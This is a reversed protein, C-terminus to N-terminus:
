LTRFTIDQYPHLASIKCPTVCISSAKTVCVVADFTMGKSGMTDHKNTIQHKTTKTIQIKENTKQNIDHTVLDTSISLLWISINTYCIENGVTLTLIKTLIFLPEKM